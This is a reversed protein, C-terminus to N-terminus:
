KLFLLNEREIWGTSNGYKIFVWEKAEGKIEVRFGSNLKINFSSTKEPISLVEGNLILAYNKDLQIRYVFIIFFLIISFVIFIILQMKKHLIIFIICLIIFIVLIALLIYFIGKSLENPTNKLGCNAELARREKIQSIPLISNQEKLRLEKIQMVTSEYKKYEDKKSNSMDDESLSNIEKQSNEQNLVAVTTENKQSKKVDLIFKESFCDKEIDSWTKVRVCVEPVEIKGNKLPIIEFIGIPYETDSFKEVQFPLTTLTEEPYFVSDENLSTTYSYITSAFITSLQLKIKQGEYYLKDEPELVSFKVIPQITQPNYLVNVPTISLKYSGYRIRSAIAPLNYKGVDNFHFIIRIRTSRGNEDLIETKESSVFTVNEPLTQVTVLVDAPRMNYITTEFATDEGAFVYEEVPKFVAYSYRHAFLTCINLLFLIVCLILLRCSKSIRRTKRSKEM